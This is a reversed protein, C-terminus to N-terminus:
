RGRRGGGQGGRTPRNGQGQNGQPRRPPGNGQNAFGNQQQGAQNQAGQQQMMGRLATLANQLEARNLEGSGDADFRAIMMQALQAVTPMSQNGKGVNRNGAGQGGPQQQAQGNGNFNPQGAPPRPPGGGRGGRQADAATAFSLAAAVLLLPAIKKM